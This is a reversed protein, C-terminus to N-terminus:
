WGSQVGSVSATGSDGAVGKHVVQLHEGQAHMSPRQHMGPAAQLRQHQVQQGDVGPLTRLLRLRPRHSVHLWQSAQLRCCVMSNSDEVVRHVLARIVVSLDQARLGPRRSAAGKLM